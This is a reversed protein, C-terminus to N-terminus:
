IFPLTAIETATFVGRDAQQALMLLKQLYSRNCGKRRLDLAKAPISLVDQIYTVETASLYVSKM